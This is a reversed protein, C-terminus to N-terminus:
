TLFGGCEKLTHKIKVNYSWYKKLEVYLYNKLYEKFYTKLYEKLLEEISHLLTSSQSNIEYM